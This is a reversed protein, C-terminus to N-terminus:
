QLSTRWVFDRVAEIQAPTIDTVTMRTRPDIKKPDTIWTRAWDFDVRHSVNILDPGQQSALPTAVVKGLAHCQSCRLVFMNKGEDTPAPHLAIQPGTDPLELPRQGAAALYKVMVGIERESLKLGPMRPTRWPYIKGPARPDKLFARTWAPLLKRGSLRLDPGVDGGKGDDMVHCGRCGYKDAVQRGAVLPDAPLPPEAAPTKMSMIYDVLPWRDAAPIMDGFAPMPSGDLGSVLRMMVDNPTSGGRFVGSTFDRVKVPRDQEDTLSAAAVGDGKGTEGHCKVCGMATYVQKGKAVSAPTSPSPTGFGAMPEPEPSDILDALTLVYAVVQKREQPSLYGFPPMASGPLGNEVTKLLDDTTPPKGTPTSRIKFVKKTFDRPRPELFNAAPGQGNGRDGHCAACERLYTKKGAVADLDSVPRSGAHLTSAFLVFLVIPKM